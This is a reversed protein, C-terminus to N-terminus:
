QLVLKRTIINKGTDLKLIYTGKELDQLPLSIKQYAELSTLYQLKGSMDLIKLEYQRGKELGILNITVQEAAPNPYVDFKIKDLEDLISVWCGFTANVFQPFAGAYIEIPTSFEGLYVIDSAGGDWRSGMWELNFIGFGMNEEKPHKFYDLQLNTQFTDRQNTTPDFVLIQDELFSNNPDAVPQFTFKQENRYENYTARAGSHPYIVSQSLAGTSSLVLSLMTMSNAPSSLIFLSDGIQLFEQANAASDNLPYIAYLTDQATGYHYLNYTGNTDLGTIFLGDDTVEFVEPEFHFPFRFQEQLGPYSYVVMSFYNTSDEVYLVIPDTKVTTVQTAMRLVGPVSVSSLTNVNDGYPSFDGPIWYAYMGIDTVVVYPNQSGWSVISTNEPWPERTFAVGKIETGPLTDIVDYAWLSIPFGERIAGLLPPHGQSPDGSSPILYNGIGCGNSTKLITHTIEGEILLPAQIFGESDWFFESDWFAWLGEVAVAAKLAELNARNPDLNRLNEPNSIQTPGQGIAKCCFSALIALCLVITSIKM